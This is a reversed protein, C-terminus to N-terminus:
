LLTAAVAVVSFLVIQTIVLSIWLRKINTNIVDITKAHDTNAKEITANINNQVEQVYPVTVVQDSYSKM